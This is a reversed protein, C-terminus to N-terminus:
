SDKDYEGGTKKIDNKVIGFTVVDIAGGIMKSVCGTFMFGIFIPVIIRKM